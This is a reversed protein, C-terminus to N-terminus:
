GLVASGGKMSPVHARMRYGQGKINVVTAHHLLRDLITTTVSM